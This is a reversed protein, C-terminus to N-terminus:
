TVDGGDIARIAEVAVLSKIISSFRGLIDELQLHM